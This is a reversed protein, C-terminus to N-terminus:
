ACHDTVVCEQGPVPFERLIGQCLVVLKDIQKQACRPSGLTCCWTLLFVDTKMSVLNTCAQAQKSPKHRADYLMSSAEHVQAHLNCLDIGAQASLRGNSPQTQSPESHWKTSGEAPRLFSLPTNALSTHRSSHMCSHRVFGLMRTRRCAGQARQQMGMCTSQGSSSRSWSSHSLTM